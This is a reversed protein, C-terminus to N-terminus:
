STGGLLKQVKVSHSAKVQPRMGFYKLTPHAVSL